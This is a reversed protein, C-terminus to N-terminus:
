VNNRLFNHQFWELTEEWTKRNSWRITVIRRITDDFNWVQHPMDTRVLAIKGTDWEDIPEGYGDFWAKYAVGIEGHKLVIGSKSPNFWRMVGQGDLVINLSPWYPELTASDLDTHISKKDANPVMSFVLSHLTGLESLKQYVHDHLYLKPDCTDVHFKKNDPLKPIVDINKIFTNVSLDINYHCIMEGM